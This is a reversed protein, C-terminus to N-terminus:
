KKFRDAYNRFFDAVAQNYDAYAQNSPHDSDVLVSFNIDHNVPLIKMWEDYTRLGPNQQACALLDNQQTILAEEALKQAETNNNAKYDQMPDTASTVARMCDQLKQEAQSIAPQSSSSASGFGGDDSFGFGSSSTTSSSSSGLFKNLDTNYQKLGSADEQEMSSVLHGVNENVNLIHRWSAMTRLTPNQQAYALLSNMSMLFTTLYARKTQLDATTQKLLKAESTDVLGIRRM